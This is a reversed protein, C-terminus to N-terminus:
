IIKYATYLTKKRKPYFIGVDVVEFKFRELEKLFKKVNTNIDAWEFSKTDTTLWSIEGGSETLTKLKKLFEKKTLQITKPEDFISKVKSVTINRM